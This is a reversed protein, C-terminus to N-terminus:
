KELLNMKKFFDIVERNTIFSVNYPHECSFHEFLSLEQTNKYLSQASSGFLILKVRNSDLKAITDVIFGKWEKTHYSLSSKDTFVLSSNLLLVGNKEFNDKLDWITEIFSSKDIKAIADQSTDGKLNGRSVLAMKLFNRLSTARNVEKSFRGSSDFINSVAGDIFAYGSASAERPYPDQGLLVYRVKDPTLGCFANFLHEKKPFYYRNAKLFNLYSPSLKTLDLDWSKDVQDLFGQM